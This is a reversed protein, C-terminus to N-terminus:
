KRIAAVKKVSQSFLTVCFACSNCQAKQSLNAGRNLVAPGCQIVVEALLKKPPFLVM